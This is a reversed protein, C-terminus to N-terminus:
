RVVHMRIDIWQCPGVSAQNSCFAVTCDNAGVVPVQVDRSARNARTTFASQTHLADDFRRM